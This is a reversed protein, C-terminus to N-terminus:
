KNPTSFSCFVSVELRICTCFDIFPFLIFSFTLHLSLEFLMQSQTNIENFYTQILKRLAPGQINKCNGLGYMGSIMEPNLSHHDKTRDCYFESLLQCEESSLFNHPLKNVTTSLISLGKQRRSVSVSDTLLDGLKELLTVVTFTNKSEKDKNLVLDDRFKNSLNIVDGHELDVEKPDVEM